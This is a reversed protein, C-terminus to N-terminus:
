RKWNYNNESIKKRRKRIRESATVEDRKAWRRLTVKKAATPRMRHHISSKYRTRFERFSFRLSFTKKKWKNMNTTFTNKHLITHKFLCDAHFWDCVCIFYREFAFFYGWCILFFFVINAFNFYMTPMAVFTLYRCFSTSFAGVFFCKKRWFRIHQIRLM